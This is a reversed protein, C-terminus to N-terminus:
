SLRKWRKMTMECPYDEYDLDWEDVEGRQVNAIVRNDYHKFRSIYDPLIRRYIKCTKCYLRELVIESKEGGPIKLIRKVYDRHAM